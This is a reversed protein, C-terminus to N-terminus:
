QSKSLASLMEIIKANQAEMKTNQAEVKNIQAQSKANESKAEASQAVMQANQAQMQAAQAEIKATQAENQAQIERMKIELRAFTPDPDKARPEAVLVHLWEPFLMNDKADITPVFPDYKNINRYM